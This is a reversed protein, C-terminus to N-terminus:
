SRRRRGIRESWGGYSARIGGRLWFGTDRGNLHRRRPHRSVGVVNIITWALVAFSLVGFGTARLPVGNDGAPVDLAWSLLLIAGVMVFAYVSTPVRQAVRLVPNVLPERPFGHEVRSRRRKGM